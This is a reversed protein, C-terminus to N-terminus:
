NKEQSRKINEICRKINEQSKKINEQTINKLSLQSLGSPHTQGYREM